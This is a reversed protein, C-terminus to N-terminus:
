DIQGFEIVKLAKFIFCNKELIKLSTPVRIKAKELSNEKVSKKGKSHKATLKRKQDESFSACLLCDKKLTCLDDGKNLERCRFCYKRNDWSSMFHGCATSKKAKKDSSENTNAMKFFFETFLCFLGQFKVVELFVDESKIALLFLSTFLTTM